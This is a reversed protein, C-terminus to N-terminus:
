LYGIGKTNNTGNCKPCFKEKWCGVGTLFLSSGYCGIFECGKCQLVQMQTRAREKTMGCNPCSIYTAM